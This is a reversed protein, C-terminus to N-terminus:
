GLKQLLQSCYTVVQPSTPLHQIVHKRQAHVVQKDSKTHTKQKATNLISGTIELMSPSHEVASNGVKLTWESTKVNKDCTRGLNDMSAKFGSYGM